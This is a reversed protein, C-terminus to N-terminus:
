TPQLVGRQRPPLALKAGGFMNCRSNVFPADSLAEEPFFLLM